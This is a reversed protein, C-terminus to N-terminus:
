ALGGFRLLYYLAPATLLLSDIRDLLGGHGALMTGSDKIGATRKLISETLDGTIGIGVLLPAFLLVPPLVGAPLLLLSVVCAALTGAALGGIGGAVTKGPSIRPCLRRRGFRRGAYYAGTDSGITLGTLLALWAVGQDLERLLVLHAIGLGVYLLGFAGWGLIRPMVEPEPIWRFVLGLLTILAFFLGAVMAATGALSTLVPFVSLTVLSWHRWGTVGPLSMRWYERFAIMALGSFVAWFVTVPALFLLLGWALAMVLGPLVRKM